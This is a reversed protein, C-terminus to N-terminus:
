PSPRIDAIDKEEPDEWCLRTLIEFETRAKRDGKLEKVKESEELSLINKWPVWKLVKGPLCSDYVKAFYVESPTNAKSLIESPYNALFATKLQRWIKSDVRPAPAVQGLLELIRQPQATPAGQSGPASAGNCISSCEALVRRLRGAQPSFSYDADTLDGRSPRCSFGPAGLDGM